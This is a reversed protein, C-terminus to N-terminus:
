TGGGIVLKELCAALARQAAKLEEGIDSCDCIARSLNSQAEDKLRSLESIRDNADCLRVRHRRVQRYHEFVEASESISKALAAPIHDNNSV